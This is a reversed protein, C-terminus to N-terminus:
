ADEAADPGTLSRYTRLYTAANAEWTRTSAVRRRGAEGLSQRLLPDTLTALAAALASPDEPPVVFGEVQDDVFERLAPLDSVVLPLGAAMAEAPKLPTVLRCVPLDRRPVVFVDLAALHDEVAGRPVRGPMLVRGPAPMDLAAARLAPAAEGDGVLLMTVPTGSGALRRVAELLVDFGEYDLISSVSGVVLEGAPIGLRARTGARDGSSSLAAAPVANPVLDIPRHPRARATITDRMTAGLTLVADAAAVAFAEQQQFLRYRDTAQADPGNRQAWTEELLGRVEYVVPLDHRAGVELATLANVFHSHAHLVDPRFREVLGDLLRLEDEHRRVASARWRRPLLRLYEVGDVVEVMGAPIRLLSAPYAYPTVATVVMGADQQAKLVEHSRGTYGSHTHPLSNTVLHLVRLPSGPTPQRSPRRRPPPRRSLVQVEARWGAAVRASPTSSIAEGWRGTAWLARARAARAVRSTDGDLLRLAHGPRGAALLARAVGRRSGPGAAAASTALADVRAEDGGQHALLVAAGKSGSRAVLRLVPLAFGAVPHAGAGAVLAAGVSAPDQLVRDVASSAALALVPLRDVAPASPRM